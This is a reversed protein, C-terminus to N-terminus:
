GTARGLAMRMQRVLTEMRIPKRLVKAVGLAVREEEGLRLSGSLLLATATEGAARLRALLQRGTLGPMQEDLLVGDFPGSSEWATWAAAGDGVAVVDFGAARLAESVVDRVLPEDDAVLIRAREPSSM